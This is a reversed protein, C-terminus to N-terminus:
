EIECLRIVEEQFSLDESQSGLKLNNTDSGKLIMDNLSDCWDVANRIRKHRSELDNNNGKVIKPEVNNTQLVRRLEEPM